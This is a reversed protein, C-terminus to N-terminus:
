KLDSLKDKKILYKMFDIIFITDFFCGECNKPCPKRNIYDFLFYFLNFSIKNEKLRKKIEKETLIKDKLKKIHRENDIKNKM